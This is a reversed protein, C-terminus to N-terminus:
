RRASLGPITRRRKCRQYGAWMCGLMGVAAVLGGAVLGQVAHRCSPHPSDLAFTPCTPVHLTAMSAASWAWLLGLAVLMVSLWLALRARQPHSTNMVNGTRHRM